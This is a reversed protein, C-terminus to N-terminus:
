REPPEIATARAAAIQRTLQLNHIVAGDLPYGRAEREAQRDYDDREKHREVDNLRFEVRAM